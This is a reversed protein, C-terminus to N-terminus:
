EIPRDNASLLGCELAFRVLEARNQFGYKELVRARYTEVTKVSIDLQDAIEQNTHGLALQRFVDKERNNLLHLPDQKGPASKTLLVGLENASLDLNVFTRGKAVARIATILETDAATKVVFGRAGHALAAKALAADDHMTLVIVRADPSQNMIKTLVQIGSGDPLTLDLLIIDAGASKLRLLAEDGTSAEGAVEIDAHDRLLSRLGAVFLAHDDILFTRIKAM